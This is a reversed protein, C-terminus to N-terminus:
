SAEEVGRMGGGGVEVGEMPRLPGGGLCARVHGRRDMRMMGGSVQRGQTNHDEWWLDALTMM